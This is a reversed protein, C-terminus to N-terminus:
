LFFVSKITNGILLDCPSFSLSFIYYYIFIIIVYVYMHIYIFVTYINRYIYKKKTKPDCHVPSFRSCLTIYIIYIIGVHNWYSLAAGLHRKKKNWGEEGDGEKVALPEMSLGSGACLLGAAPRHATPQSGSLGLAGLWLLAQSWPWCCGWVSSRDVRNGRLQAGKVAGRKLGALLKCHIAFSGEIRRFRLNELCPVSNIM